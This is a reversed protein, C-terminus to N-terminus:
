AMPQDIDRCLNHTTDNHNRHTDWPQGNGYYVQVFRVGRECLRRALLCANAFHGRGYEDRIRPPERQIDFADTAAAQMRFAIEMAKIRAELAPDAGRLGRHEENLQRMLELQRRQAEPALQTNRLYPLM